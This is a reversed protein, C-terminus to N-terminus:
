NLGRSEDIEVARLGSSRQRHRRLVRRLVGLLGKRMAIGFISGSITGLVLAVVVLWWPVGRAEFDESDREGSGPAGPCFVPQRGVEISRSVLWELSDCNGSSSYRHPRVLFVSVLAVINASEVEPGM